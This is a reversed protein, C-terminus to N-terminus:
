GAPQAGVATLRRATERLPRHAEHIQPPKAAPHPIAFEADNIVDITTGTAHTTAAAANMLAASRGRRITGRASTTIAIPRPSTRPAEATVTGPGPDTSPWRPVRGTTISPVTRLASGPLPVVAMM